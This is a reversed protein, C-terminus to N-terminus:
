RPLGAEGRFPQSYPISLSWYRSWPETVVFTWFEGGLLELQFQWSMSVPPNEQFSCFQLVVGGWSQSPPISEWRSHLEALFGPIWAITTTLFGWLHSNLTFASQALLGSLSPYVLCYIVCLLPAELQACCMQVSLSCVVGVLLKSDVARLHPFIVSNWPSVNEDARTRSGGRLPLSVWSAQYFYLM